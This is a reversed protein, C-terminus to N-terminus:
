RCEALQDGTPDEGPGPFPPPPAPGGLFLHGLLNVADTLDLEGSDDSDCADPCGPPAGGLFLNGLLYVADTLDLEASGDCDGRRFRSDAAGDVVELEAYGYVPQPDKPDLAFNSGWIVSWRGPRLGCPSRGPVEFSSKFSQGPAIETGYIIACRLMCPSCPSGRGQADIFIARDCCFAHFVSVGLPNVASLELVEGPALKDKSLELELRRDAPPLVLVSASGSYPTSDVGSFNRFGGWQIRHLGPLSENLACTDAGATWEYSRTGKPPLEEQVVCALCVLCLAPRGLPDFVAPANCCRNFTLTTGQSPNEVTIHVKEGARVVPPEARVILEHIADPRVEVRGALVEPQGKWEVQYLGPDVPAEGCLQLPYWEFLAAGGPAITLGGCPDPTPPLCSVERGDAVSVIRPGACTDLKFDTGSRNWVTINFGDDVRGIPPDVVVEVFDEARAGAVPLLLASFAAAFWRKRTVAKM